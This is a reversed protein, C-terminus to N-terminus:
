CVGMLFILGTANGTPVHVSQVALGGCRKADRRSTSGNRLRKKSNRRSSEGNADFMRDVPRRGGTQAVARSEFQASSALTVIAVAMALAVRRLANM